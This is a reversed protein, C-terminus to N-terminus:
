NPQQSVMIFQLESKQKQNSHQQYQRNVRSAQDTMQSIPSRYMRLQLPQRRIVVFRLWRTKKCSLHDEAKLELIIGADLTSGVSLSARYILGAHNKM